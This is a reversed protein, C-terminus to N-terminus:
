IGFYSLSKLERRDAYNQLKARGSEHGEGIIIKWKKREIEWGKTLTEAIVCFL